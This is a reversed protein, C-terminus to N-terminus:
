LVYPSNFLCHCSRTQLVFNPCIIVIQCLNEDLQSISRKRRRIVVWRIQPTHYKYPPMEGRCTYIIGSTMNGNGYVSLYSFNYWYLRLRRRNTYWSKSRMKDFSVNNESRRLIVSAWTEQINVRWWLLVGSTLDWSMRKKLRIRDM